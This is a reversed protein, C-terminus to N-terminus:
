SVWAYVRCTCIHQIDSVFKDVINSVTRAYTGLSDQKALAHIDLIQTQHLYVPAMTLAHTSLHVVHIQFIFLILSKIRISSIFIGSNEKPTGWDHFIDLARAEDCMSALDTYIGDWRLMSPVM